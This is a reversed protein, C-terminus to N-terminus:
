IFKKKVKRPYLIQTKHFKVFALINYRILFM